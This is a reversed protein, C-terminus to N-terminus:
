VCLDKNTIWKLYLLTYMDMGFERVIRGGMRFHVTLENGLDTFRCLFQKQLINEVMDWITGLLDSGGNGVAKVWKNFHKQKASGGERNWERVGENHQRPDGRSYIFTGLDKDCTRNRFLIWVLVTKYLSGNDQSLEANYNNIEIHKLSSRQPCARHM